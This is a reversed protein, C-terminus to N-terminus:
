HSKVSSHEVVRREREFLRILAAVSNVELKRM